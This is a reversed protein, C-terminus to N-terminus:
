PTGVIPTSTVARMLWRDGVKKLLMLQHLAHEGAGPRGAPVISVGRSRVLIIGPAIMEASVLKDLRLQPRYKDIVHQGNGAATAKGHWHPGMANIIDVDEALAEPDNLGKANWDQIGKELFARAISMADERDPASAAGACLSFLALTLLPLRSM